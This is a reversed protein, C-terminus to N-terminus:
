LSRQRRRQEETSENAEMLALTESAKHFAFATVAPMYNTFCGIKRKQTCSAASAHIGDGLAAVPLVLAIALIVLNFRPQLM